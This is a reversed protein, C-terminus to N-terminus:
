RTKKDLLEITRKPDIVLKDYLTQYKRLEKIIDIEEKSLYAGYNEANDAVVFTDQGLFYSVDVNFVRTIDLLTELTPVRTGNEYCCVSVKTVNIMNGLEQQTLGKQKRLEKLRKGLLM